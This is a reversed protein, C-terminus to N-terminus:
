QYYYTSTSTNTGDVSVSKTPRKSSNYAYSATGTASVPSTGTHDTVTKKTPNNASYFTAMDLVPADKPFFLPNVNADYQDYSTTEDLVATSGSYSYNKETAINSGNYTYETKTDLEYGNGSGDDLYSIASVLKGAADYNFVSSDAMPISLFSYRAVGYKYRSAAADYVYNTAVSDVGIAAYLSSTVVYSAIVNAAGRVIKIHADFAQGSVTGEYVIGTLLGAANYTFNTTISDAGTRSGIRLLKTASGGTGGNAPDNPDAFRPEKQCASLLVFLSFVLALKKM